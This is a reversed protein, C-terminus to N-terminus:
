APRPAACAPARARYARLGNTLALRATKVMAADRGLRVTAAHAGLADHAAAAVSIRVLDLTSARLGRTLQRRLHTLEGPTGRVDQIADALRETGLALANFQRALESDTKAGAGLLAEAVRVGFGQVQVVLTAYRAVFAPSPCRAQPQRGDAPSPITGLFTLTCWLAAVLAQCRRPTRKM